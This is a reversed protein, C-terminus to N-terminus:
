YYYPTKEAWSSKPYRRHLVTFAEKSLAKQELAPPDKDDGTYCGYHTARVILALAEPADKEEPHAKVYDLARRGVWAVGFPLRNLKTQEDGAAKRESATLFLLPLPALTLPNDQQDVARAGAGWKECWWNDRFEELIGPAFSRQAGQELYPRLGPNRLVALTAPFGLSDGVAQSLSFPLLPALAKVTAEDGLGQARLWAAMAVSGRLREPVEKAKAAEVWLSLPLQRNFAQATDDDFTLPSGKMADSAEAAESQWNIVSRPADNLFEPFSTATQIRLGLLANRASQTGEGKLGDLVSTTLRRAGPFDGEGIMLRAREYSVTTYAPSSAPVKAATRLLEANEAGRPKAVMLAAVLWQTTKKTRWEAISDVKRVKEESAEDSLPRPLADMWLMLDANSEVGHDALFRLDALHQAFDSDPRPGAIATAVDNLRKKPDLRVEIFALEAEAAHKMAANGTAVVKELRAKAQGLLAKDFTAPDDYDGPSATIAAKRVEARAALYEGWPHWPSAADQAVTEFGAIAGDYDTAYFKAAAIQYERDMRLLPSANAPLPGPIQGSGSCNSFVADQGRLWEALAQSSQGWQKTRSELTAKATLFAGDPCNLVPDREIGDNTKTQLPRDQIIEPTDKVEVKLVAARAARWQNVPRAAQEADYQQQWTKSDDQETVTPVPAYAAREADSLKGGILYRYAVVKDARWYGPQLVGLRGSAFADPNQPHSAPVFVEPGFDPGCAMVVVLPAAVVLTAIAAAVTKKNQKVM